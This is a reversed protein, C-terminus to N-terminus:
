LFSTLVFNESFSCKGVPIQAIDAQIQLFLDSQSVGGDVMLSELQVTSDNTMAELVETSQFAISELTARALHNRTSHQSLGCIVSFFFSPLTLHSAFFFFLILLDRTNGEQMMEGIHLLCAQFHLCLTYVVVIMLRVLWNMQCSDLLLVKLGVVVFVIHIACVLNMQM